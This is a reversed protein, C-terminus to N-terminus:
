KKATEREKKIREEKTNERRKPEQPRQGRQRKTSTTTSRQHQPSYVTAHHHRKPRFEKKYIFLSLYNYKTKLFTKFVKKM